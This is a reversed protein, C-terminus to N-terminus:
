FNVVLAVTLLTDTTDLNVPIPRHKYRVEYTTKLAFDDALATILATESNIKYNDTDDFDHLYEVSQSFKTKETFVYEYRGFARGELFDSDTDDTYEEKAFNLGGEGLLFHNPGVMFKYGLLPGAYYRADFGSFEDKLWGAAVAGYMREAFQLSFKLDTSYREATTENEEESKLAAIKWEGKLKDSFQYLLLNKASLTTTETNGGTSVFSLEAEDKWRKDEKTEEAQIQAAMFGFIFIIATLLVKKMSNEKRVSLGLPLIVGIVM